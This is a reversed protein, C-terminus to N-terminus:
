GPRREGALEEGAGAAADTGLASDRVRAREGVLAARGIASGEVHASAAVRAGPLLVSRVVAADHEVTSGAGIVADPGVEAGAGIVAGAGVLVPARLIASPDVEADPAVLVGDASGGIRTHVRGGVADANAALFSELTGIDRWYGDSRVCILGQGVLQPFVEREISVMRDSPILDLVAPDLVYAGANVWWPAPGLGDATPPKEVFREVSGQADHVVVGFRTPDDVPTLGISAMAGADHHAAVLAGLDADGLVDGNLALFPGDVRGAAAFRIAGATGLPEDEVVVEVEIGGPPTGIGARLQEPLYGCSLIVRTVGAAALRDLLLSVFPVDGIPLVPKPADLTLPRLRTGEGGVLVVAIM